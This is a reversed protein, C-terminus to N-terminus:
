KNGEKKAEKSLYEERLKDLIKIAVRQFTPFREGNKCQRIQAQMLYNLEGWTKVTKGLRGLLNKVVEPVTDNKMSALMGANTASTTTTSTPQDDTSVDILPMDITKAM